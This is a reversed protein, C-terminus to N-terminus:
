LLKLCKKFESIQDFHLFIDAQLTSKKDFIGNVQISIQYYDDELKYLECIVKHFNKIKSLMYYGDGINNVGIINYMLKKIMTEKSIILKSDYESFNINSNNISNLFEKRDINKYKSFKRLYIDIYYISNIDDKLYNFLHYLIM